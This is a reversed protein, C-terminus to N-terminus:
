DASLSRGAEELGSQLDVVTSIKSLDVGLSVLSQAVESSLGSVVVRAGMLRAASVTQVIHNAVMTDIVAVGTVDMVIAKARNEHIKRLLSETILRAREPEIMGILPLLLVGERVQLVPASLERISQEQRRIVREREFVIV